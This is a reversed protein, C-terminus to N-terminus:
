NQENCYEKLNLTLKTGNNCIIHLIGDEPLDSFEKIGYSMGFRHSASYGKTLDNGNSDKISFLSSTWGARSYNFNTIASYTIYYYGHKSYGVEKLHVKHTSVDVDVDLSVIQTNNKDFFDLTNEVMHFSLSFIRLFSLVLLITLITSSAMCLYGLLPHHAKNLMKGLTIPNGMQQLAQKEADEQSYGQEIFDSTSDELHQNLEEEIANRDFIYYVQKRVTQLYEQKTM